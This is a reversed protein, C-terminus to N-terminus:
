KARAKLQQQLVAIHWRTLLLAGRANHALIEAAHRGVSNLRHSWVAKALEMWEKRQHHEAVKANALAMRMQALSPQKAKTKKM